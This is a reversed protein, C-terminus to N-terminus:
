TTTENRNKVDELSVAIRQGATGSQRAVGWLFDYGAARVCFGNTDVTVRDGRTVTDGLIWETIGDEMVTVGKGRAIEATLCDFQSIGVGSSGAVTVAVVSEADAGWTVATFKLIESDADYGKAIGYNGYAVM